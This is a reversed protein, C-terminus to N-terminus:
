AQAAADAAAQAMERHAYMQGGDIVLGMAGVLFIGLATVVLLLAQGKRNNKMALERFRSSERPSAEWLTVPSLFIVSSRITITLSASIWKRGRNTIRPHM